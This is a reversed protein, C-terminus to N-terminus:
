RTSVENIIISSSIIIFAVLLQSGICCAMHQINKCVERRILAAQFPSSPNKNRKLGYNFIREHTM